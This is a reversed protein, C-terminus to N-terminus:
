QYVVVAPRPDLALVEQESMLDPDHQTFLKIAAHQAYPTASYREYGARKAAAPGYGDMDIILEVNPYSRIADGNVIMGDLFQHVMLLKPPTRAALVVSQLTSLAADIEGGDLSGILTGPAAGGQMAFEPDLALHVRPHLLYPLVKEIEAAATSHAIQLDLFLLMDREEAMRIYDRVTADDVYSLYLGNDTQGAQAVAYVLHIAPIVGIDGNLADYRAAQEVLLDAVREPEGAGLIGMLATQPHGYYSVIQSDPLLSGASVLTIEMHPFREAPNADLLRRLSRPPVLPPPQAAPLAATVLANDRVSAAGGGDTTIGLGLISALVGILLLSFRRDARPKRM